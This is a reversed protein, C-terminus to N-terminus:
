NRRQQVTKALERVRTMDDESLLELEPGEAIVENVTMSHVIRSVSSTSISLILLFSQISSLLLYLHSSQIHSLPSHSLFLPSRFRTAHSTTTTFFETVVTSRPAQAVVKRKREKEKKVMLKDCWCSIIVLIRLLSYM